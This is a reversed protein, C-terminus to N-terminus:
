DEKTVLSQAWVPIHRDKRYLIAMISLGLIMITILGLGGFTVAIVGAQLWVIAGESLIDLLKLSSGLVAVFITSTLTYRM